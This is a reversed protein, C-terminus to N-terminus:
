GRPAPKWVARSAGGLLGALVGISLALNMLGFYYLTGLPGKVRPGRLGSLAALAAAVLCVMGGWRLVPDLCAALVAALAAVPALWRAVKRSVFALTLMPHRWGAFLWTERRLVQGAGVGIRFRRAMESRVDGSAAERAVADGVFVVRLGRRIIRIPILFDDMSTTDPPLPSIECRRAAYIAGNAGLCIGLRGEAEKLRTERDWFQAEAVSTELILRGCAAGVRSDQFSAVLCEVAGSEFRTNADTFVVIESESAAVLDNLVSAKGRREAFEVVRVRADGARRARAATGDASGDCGITVRYRAPVEQELLNAVRDAIVTEEDAASVVVEVSAPPVGSDAGGPTRAALRRVLPPYFLYSWVILILSLGLLAAALVTV